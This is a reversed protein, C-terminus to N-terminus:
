CILDLCEPIFLSFRQTQEDAPHLFVRQARRSIVPRCTQSLLLVGRLISLFGLSRVRGVGAAIEGLRGSDALVAEEGM